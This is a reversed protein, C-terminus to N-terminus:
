IFSFYFGIFSLPPLSIFLGSILGLFLILLLGTKISLFLNDYSLDLFLWRILSGGFIAGLTLCGIPWLVLPKDELGGLINSYREGVIFKILRLSYIITLAISVILFGLFLVRFGGEFREEIIKDKSYFASLFPVGGLAFSCVGMRIRTWPMYEGVVRLDRVDQRGGYLHIVGGACLFLCAKFLAHALLHFFALICLGASLAMMMLGLQRLTSLAIVKKLDTEYLAGVRSMIMTLSGTFFLVQGGGVSSIIPYFRILLYVGATVLTSSHVLASVPAPAAMAAPLWASFPIQARKTMAALIVFSAVVIISSDPFKYFIFSLDGQSLM